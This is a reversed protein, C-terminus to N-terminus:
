RDLGPPLKLAKSLQRAPDQTRSRVIAKRIDLHLEMAKLRGQWEPEFQFINRGVETALGLRKLEQARAKLANT